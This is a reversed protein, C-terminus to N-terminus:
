AAVIHEVRHEDIADQDDHLMHFADHLDDQAASFAGQCINIVRERTFMDDDEDEDEPGEPEMEAFNYAGVDKSDDHEVFWVDGGHGPVVNVVTGHIGVARVKLHREAILMGTTAGRKNVSDNTVIRLGQKIDELNM